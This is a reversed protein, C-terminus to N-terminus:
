CGYRSKRCVLIVAVNPLGGVQQRDNQNKQMNLWPTTNEQSQGKDTNKKEHRKQRHVPSRILITASRVNSSLMDRKLSFAFFSASGLSHFRAIFTILEYSVNVVVTVIYDQYTHTHTHVICNPEEDELDYNLFQMSKKCSGTFFLQLTYSFPWDATHRRHRGTWLSSSYIYDLWAGFTSPWNHSCQPRM